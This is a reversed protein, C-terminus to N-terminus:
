PLIPTGTAPSSSGVELDPLTAPVEPLAPTASNLGDVLPTPTPLPPNSIIYDDGGATLILNKVTSLDSLNNIKLFKNSFTYLADGIYLSRKVTNDYYYFGHWYDEQTFHGGESHDIRGRLNFRNDTLDFVLSGAFSLRGANERLVAPVVLLNKSQSYLFAKHDTLAISDSNSDGLLYSNLEKPNTLDTFDFLSLKLGKVKVGGGTEEEADRGFGILKTGDKDVPHLYNSFGPIKVAGLVSPKAPDSLSIVYLPDTRKFTVLYLRNGMFRAAYIRESTALNELSGVLKLDSDLVYVNSYSDEPKNTLRSWAQSRTTAVRFYNGDEDMSFQNLVQGSVEGMAKYEVQNGSIAIKHIITKEMDKAKESLKQKLAADIDAQFVLQEESSLSNLYRDIIATVKYKKENKSLIFNGVAEIKSIKEQDAASLKQFVLARKLEQELDYENIYETYTIYINSQSVFTNQSSNLLYVQGGLVENNDKINIATISTFNYSDYPIDFYYVDPSFCKGGGACKNALVEGQELVRPTLPENEVYDAYTNTLLYVYDGILRADNYSGEFDLDRVERPNAPDSIDFVKFFTYANRRKFSQYIPLDYIQNDAGFVALSSGKIFLDLPRTKFSIKSIIQADNAPTAKIIQLENRVLAYIYSGDTKIIDAEDVGEVQNNTGSYDFSASENSSAQSASESIAANPALAMGPSSKLMLDGSFSEGRSRYNASYGSASENNNAELFKQLEEYNAFKKVQKTAVPVETETDAPAEVGPETPPAVAKKKWPLTCATSLFALVLLLLSLQCIKKFMYFILM